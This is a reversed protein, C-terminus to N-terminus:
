QDQEKVVLSVNCLVSVMEALNRVLCAMVHHDNLRCSQEALLLCEVAYSMHDHYERLYKKCSMEDTQTIAETDTMEETTNDLIGELEKDTM